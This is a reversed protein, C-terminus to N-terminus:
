IRSHTTTYHHGKYRITPPHEVDHALPDTVPGLSVKEINYLGKSILFNNMAQLMTTRIALVNYVDDCRWKDIYHEGMFSQLNQGSEVLAAQFNNLSESISNIVNSM